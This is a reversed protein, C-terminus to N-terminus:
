PSDEEGSASHRKCHSPSLTLPSTHEFIAISAKQLISFLYRFFFPIALHPQVTKINYPYLIASSLYAIKDYIIGIQSFTRNNGTFAPKRMM